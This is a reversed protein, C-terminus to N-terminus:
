PAEGGKKEAKEPYGRRGSRAVAGGVRERIERLLDREVREARGVETWVMKYRLADFALRQEVVRLRVRVGKGVPRLEVRAQLRGGVTPDPPFYDSVLLGEEPDATLVGGFRRALLSKVAAFATRRDLRPFLAERYGACGVALPLLLLPALRKM